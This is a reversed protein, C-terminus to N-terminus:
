GTAGPMGPMQMVSRRPPASVKVPAGWNDMTMVMTGQGLDMQVVRMLDEDDLWLDYTVTDPMSGTGQGQAKAAAKGDVTLVYHDADVGSVSERGVYKVDELGDDFAGFTRLPDGSTVGGLDGFPSNPDNTDIKIFKGAPTMPPMSMYMVGDVLRMEIDDSGMEPMSMQMQMTTSDGAYSVDGEATMGPGSGDSMEMTLHASEHKEVAAKMAALLEDEDYGGEVEAPESEAPEPSESESEPPESEASTPSGSTEDSAPTTDDGGCAALSLTLAAAGLASLVRTRATSRM